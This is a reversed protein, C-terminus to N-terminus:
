LHCIAFAFAGTLYGPCQTAYKKYSELILLSDPVSQDSGRDMDLRRLLEKRNDIRADATIILGTAADRYPLKEQKSEPTNHLMLQGFGVSGDTLHARQSADWHHLSDMMAEIEGKHLAASRDKRYIGAISSM